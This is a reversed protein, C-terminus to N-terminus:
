KVNSRGSADVTEHPPCYCLLHVAIASAHPAYAQRWDQFTRWAEQEAREAPLGAMLARNVTDPFDNEERGQLSVLPAPVSVRLQGALERLCATGSRLLARAYPLAASPALADVLAATDLAIVMAELWCLDSNRPLNVLVPYASHTTRVDNFWRDWEALLPGITCSGDRLHVALLDEAEPPSAAQSAIRRVSRERRGYAACVTALYGAFCAVTAGVAGWALVAVAAGLPGAQEPRTRLLLGAVADVDARVGGVAVAVLAFGSVLGAVWVLLVAALALPGVLDVYRPRGGECSGPRMVARAAALTTRLAFRMLRSSRNRPVVVTRAVSTLAAGLIILGLVLEAGAILQHV